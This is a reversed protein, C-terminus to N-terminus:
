GRDRPSPSTYLLCSVVIKNDGGSWEDYIDFNRGDAGGVVYFHKTNDVGQIKIAHKDPVVGKGIALKGFSGTSSSSGSIKNDHTLLLLATGGTTFSLPGSNAIYSMGARTAGNNDGFMYGGTYGSKTILQAYQHENDGAELILTSWASYDYGLSTAHGSIHLKGRTGQPSTTGIGVKGDNKIFM